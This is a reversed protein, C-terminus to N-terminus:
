HQWPEDSLKKIHGRRVRTAQYTYHLKCLGSSLRTIKTCGDFFCQRKILAKIKETNACQEKPTAWRCNEPSYGKSNDIRDITTNREGHKEAHRIFWYGMDEAFVYFDHRWRPCVTIGKGRYANYPATGPTSTHCRDVMGKWRKWLLSEKLM